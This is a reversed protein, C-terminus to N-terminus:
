PVWWCPRAGTLSPSCSKAQLSYSVTGQELCNLGEPTKQIGLGPFRPQDREDCTQTESGSAPRLAQPSSLCFPVSSPARLGPWLHM